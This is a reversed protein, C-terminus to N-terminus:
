QRYGTAMSTRLIGRNRELISEVERSREGASVFILLGDPGIEQDVLQITDPGVGMCRMASALDLETYPADEQCAAKKAVDSTLGPGDTTYDHEVSHRLRWLLSHKGAPDAALPASRSERSTCVGLDAARFGGLKLDAIADRASTDDLFVAAVLQNPTIGIKPATETLMCVM